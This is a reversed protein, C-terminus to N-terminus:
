CKPRERLWINMGWKEGAAVPEGAHLTRSDPKGNEDLNYWLVACGKKPRFRMELQPFYTCGGEEVDNLYVFCTVVRQGRTGLRQKYGPLNEQFYDYHANYRQTRDYHVVQLAEAHQPSLGALHSARLLAVTAAPHGRDLRCNSSTRGSSVLSPMSPETWSNCRGDSKPATRSRHMRGSQKAAVIASDAEEATLFGEIVAIRPSSCMREVFMHHGEVVVCMRAGGGPALRPASLLEALTSSLTNRRRYASKYEALSLSARGLVAEEHRILEQVFGSNPLVAPRAASVAEIAERLPRGASVMYACVLTPARSIGWLCHVLVGSGEARARAIFSVAEPLQQSLDESRSDLVAVRLYQLDGDFFNPTGKTANVVHSVDNEELLKRDAATSDGGIFVPSLGPEAQIVKSLHLRAELGRTRFMSVSDSKLLDTVHPVTLDLHNSNEMTVAAM